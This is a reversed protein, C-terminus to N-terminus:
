AFCGIDNGYLYASNNTLTNTGFKPEVDDWKIGGGSNAAYNNWLTNGNRFLVTCKFTTSCTYYVGGGYGSVDMESNNLARNNYFTNGQIDMYEINNLYIGGGLYASSNQILTNTM